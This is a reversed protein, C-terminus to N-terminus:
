SGFRDLSGFESSELLSKELRTFSDQFKVVQSSHEYAADEILDEPCFNVGHLKALTCEIYYKAQNEPDPGRRAAEPSSLAESISQYFNAKPAWSVICETTSGESVLTAPVPLWSEQFISQEDEGLQRANSVLSRWEAVLNSNDLLGSESFSRLKEGITGEPLRDLQSTFVEWFKVPWGDGQCVGGKDLRLMDNRDIWHLVCVVGKTPREGPKLIQVVIDPSTLNTCFRRYTATWKGFYRKLPPGSRSRLVALESRRARPFEDGPRLIGAWSMRSGHAVM